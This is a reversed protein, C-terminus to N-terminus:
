NGFGNTGRRVGADKICAHQQHSNLYIRPFLTALSEDGLWKDEWLKTKGGDGLRWERLSEYWSGEHCV